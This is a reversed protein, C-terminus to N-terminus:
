RHLDSRLFPVFLSDFLWPFNRFALKSIVLLPLVRRVLPAM